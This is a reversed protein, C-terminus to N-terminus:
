ALQEFQSGDAQICRRVRKVLSSTFKRLLAANNISRALRVNRQFLEKGKNLKHAYVIAKMYGWAHYDLPNLDPSRPSWNQAGGRGISSNSFKNNLYQRIVQSFNPPAGDHQYCMQHTKTSSSERFANM